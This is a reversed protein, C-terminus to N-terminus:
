YWWVCLYEYGSLRNPYFFYMSLLYSRYEIVHEYPDDVISPTSKVTDYAGKAPMRERQIIVAIADISPRMIKTKSM